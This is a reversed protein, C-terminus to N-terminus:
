RGCRITLHQVEFVTNGGREPALAQEAAVTLPSSQRFGSLRRLQRFRQVARVGYSQGAGQSYLLMEGFRQM